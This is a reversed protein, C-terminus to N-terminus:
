PYHRVMTINIGYAMMALLFALAIFHLSLDIQNERRMEKSINPELKDLINDLQMALTNDHSVKYAFGETQHAIDTLLEFNVPFEAEHFSLYGGPNPQAIVAKNSNGILIPFIKIGYQKAAAVAQSTSIRGGKRDGDTLLIISKSQASSHRLSAVARLIGDGIASQTADIDDIRRKKLHNSLIDYNITLPVDIFAQAGFMTIGIRDCRAIAQAHDHCRQARSDIFDLITNRAQDFRNPTYVDRQYRNQMEELSFDYAKMSASMDLSFYIDIGETRTEQTAGGYPKAIAITLSVFALAFLLLSLVAAWFRKSHKLFQFRFVPTQPKQIKLLDKSDTYQLSPLILKRFALDTHKYLYVGYIPLIGILLLAFPYELSEIQLQKIALLFTEM